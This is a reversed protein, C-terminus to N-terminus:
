NVAVAKNLLLVWPITERQLEMHSWVDADTLKSWSTAEEVVDSNPTKLILKPQTQKM